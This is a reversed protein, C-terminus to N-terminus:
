SLILTVKVKARTTKYRSGQKRLKKATIAYGLLRLFDRIAYTIRDTRTATKGKKLGRQIKVPMKLNIPTLQVSDVKTHTMSKINDLRVIVKKYGATRREIKAKLLSDRVRTKLNFEIIKKPKKIIKERESREAFIRWEKKTSQYYLSEYIKKGRDYLELKIYKRGDPTAFRGKKDRYVRM